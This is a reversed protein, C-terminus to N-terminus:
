CTGSKRVAIMRKRDLRTRPARSLDSPVTTVFLPAATPSAAPGKEMPLVQAPIPAGAMGLQERLAEVHRCPADGVTRLAQRLMPLLIHIWPTRRRMGFLRGHLLPTPPQKLYRLIFLLRDEPTPLPCNKDITYRRAQRRRGHLTWEGM